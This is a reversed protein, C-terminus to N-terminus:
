FIMTPAFSYTPAMSYSPAFTLAQTVTYTPSKSTQRQQHEQRTPSVANSLIWFKFFYIGALALQCPYWDGVVKLNLWCKEMAWGSLISKNKVILKLQIAKGRLRNTSSKRVAFPSRVSNLSWWFWFGGHMYNTCHSLIRKIELKIITSTITQDANM